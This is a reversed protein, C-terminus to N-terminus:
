SVFFDKTEYFIMSRPVVTGIAPYFFANRMAFRRDYICSKWLIFIEFWGSM